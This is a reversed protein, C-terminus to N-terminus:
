TVGLNREIVPAVGIPKWIGKYFVITSMTLKLFTFVLDDPEFSVQKLLIAGVVTVVAAIGLMIMSQVEQSLGPRVFFAILIPMLFGVILEWQAFAAEAAGVATSNDM